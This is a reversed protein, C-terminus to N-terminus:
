SPWGATNSVGCVTVTESPASTMSVNWTDLGSSAMRLIAMLDACNPGSSITVIRTATSLVNTGASTVGPLRSEPLQADPYKVHEDLRLLRRARGGAGPPHRLV